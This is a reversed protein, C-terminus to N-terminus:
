PQLYKESRGIRLAHANTTRAHHGGILPSDGLAVFSSLRDAAPAPSRHLRRAAREAAVRANVFPLNAATRPVDPLLDLLPVLARALEAAEIDHFRMALPRARFGRGSIAARPFRPADCPGPPFRIVDDRHRVASAFASELIVAEQTARTM